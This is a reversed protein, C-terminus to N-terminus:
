ISMPHATSFLSGQGAFVGLKLLCKWEDNNEIGVAIVKTPSNLCSAMLSQLAMQNTKRINIDRVLGPHLKLYDISFDLIYGTNVM